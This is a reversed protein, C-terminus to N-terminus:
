LEGIAYRTSRQHKPELVRFSYTYNNWQKLRSDVNYDTKLKIFHQAMLHVVTVSQASSFYNGM